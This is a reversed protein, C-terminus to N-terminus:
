AMRFRYGVGSETTLYKPNAPDAEIKHRLHRMYVRLYHAEDQHLPGWVDQLLQRHTLVKGAHKILTTLLKYETPTLHVEKDRVFVSRKAHDVRLDGTAFVPEDPGPGARLGHRLATRIRALLEQVGFPKTLYDDAGLDLAQVKMAEQDRASLVVIPCASWQRIERIVDLGDRDPLGLDLLILEPNRARAENLGDQATAAEHLRFGQEPLTARLFRRIEPEDEIVLVSVDQREM